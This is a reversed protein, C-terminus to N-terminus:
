GGLLSLLIFLVTLLVFLLVSMGLQGLIGKLKSTKAIVAIGIGSVVLWWFFFLDFLPVLQGVQLNEFSMFMGAHLGFTPNGTLRSGAGDFFYKLGYIINALVTVTLAVTYGIKTERRRELVKAVILVLLSSVFPFILFLLGSGLLDDRRYDGSTKAEITAISEEFQSKYKEPIDPNDLASEVTEVEVAKKKEVLEASSNKLIAGGMGLLTSFVMAIIILKTRQQLNVLGSFAQEPATIVALIRDTASLEEGEELEVEGEDQFFEGGEHLEKANQDEM